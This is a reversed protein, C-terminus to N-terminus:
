GDEDRGEDIIALRGRFPEDSELFMVSNSQISPEVREDVAQAARGVARCVDHFAGSDQIWPLLHEEGLPEGSGGVPTCWAEAAPTWHRSNEIWMGRTMRQLQLLFPMRERAQCCFLTINYQRWVVAPFSIM